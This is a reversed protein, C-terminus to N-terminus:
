RMIFNIEMNILKCLFTKVDLTAIFYKSMHDKNEYHKWIEIYFKHTAAARVTVSPNLPFIKM